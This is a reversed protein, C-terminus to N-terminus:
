RSFIDEAITAIQQIIAEEAHYVPMYARNGFSHKLVGSSDRYYWGNPDFAHKQNPYTGVGFGSGADTPYDSTGYTVGASFEIFLVKNGSLRIEAAVGDSTSIDFTETYYGGKEEDPISEMTQRIVSIGIKSLKDVLIRQRNELDMKYTEIQKIANSISKSDLTISIDM